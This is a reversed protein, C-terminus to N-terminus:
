IGEECGLRRSSKRHLSFFLNDHFNSSDYEGTLLDGGTGGSRIVGYKGDEKAWLWTRRKGWAKGAVEAGQRGNVRYSVHEWALLDSSLGM